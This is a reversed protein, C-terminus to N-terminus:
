RPYQKEHKGPYTKLPVCHTTPLLALPFAPLPDDVVDFLKVPPDVDDDDDEEVVVEEFEDDDEVSEDDDVVDVPTWVDPVEDVVFPSTVIMLLSGLQLDGLESPM